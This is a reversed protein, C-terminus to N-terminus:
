AGSYDKEPTLLAVVAEAIIRHWTAARRVMFHGSKPLGIWRADVGRSAARATQRRSAQPDTWTDASGHLAVLGTDPGILDADGTPWWPALAVVGIVEPRAALHAAVRGGMSYGVLVVRIPEASAARLADLSALADAVPDARPANWGRLRYRFRRVDVGSPLRRRLALQLWVMRVNSLHWPRSRESSVAKGGHLLIVTKRPQMDPRM